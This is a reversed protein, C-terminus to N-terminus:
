VSDAYGPRETPKNLLPSTPVWPEVVRWGDLAPRWGLVRWRGLMLVPEAPGASLPGVRGWESGTGRIAGM